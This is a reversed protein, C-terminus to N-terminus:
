IEMGAPKVLYEICPPPPKTALDHGVRAVGHVTAQWAGRDTPNEWCSYQLPNGDGEGHMSLQMFIEAYIIQIQAVNMAYIIEKEPNHLRQFCPTKLALICFPNAYSEVM